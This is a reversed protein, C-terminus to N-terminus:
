SSAIPTRVEMIPSMTVERTFVGPTATKVTAGSSMWVALDLAGFFPGLAGEGFFSFPFPFAGAAGM